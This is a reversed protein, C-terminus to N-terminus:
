YELYQKNKLHENVQIVAHLLRMKKKAKESSWNLFALTDKPLCSGDFPGFNRIGYQKNWSAEASDVVTRFIKDADVGISEAVLRMENFFSIKTANYINHVYKMMEAEKISMHVIPAGFPQYLEDLVQAVKANNSGIVIIWPHMFDEEASIERLFEPNMAIGFDKEVKKGSYKEIIPVFRTEVTGPPVTSRIVIIPWNTSDKLVQGLSALASDIFRFDLHDNITPTLVSVIYIDRDHSCDSGINCATLGDKNLAEILITNIDVFTVDHGTALFGKGAAKGVFGSGIAAIKKKNIKGPSPIGTTEQTEM